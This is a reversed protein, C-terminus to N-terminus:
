VVAKLQVMPNELLPALAPTRESALESKPCVRTYVMM